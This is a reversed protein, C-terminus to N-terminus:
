LTTLKAMIFIDVGFNLDSEQSHKPHLIQQSRKSFRFQLGQETAPVASKLM